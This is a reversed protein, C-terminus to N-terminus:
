AWRAPLKAPGFLFPTLDQIILILSRNDQKHNYISYGNEFYATHIANNREEKSKFEQTSFLEELSARHASRQERPIETMGSKDKVLIELYNLRDKTDEYIPL